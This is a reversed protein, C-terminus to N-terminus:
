KLGNKGSDIEIEVRRSFKAYNAGSAPQQSGMGIAQIRDPAVGKQVLYDKVAEARAVSVSMNLSATGKSDTYGKIVARNRSNQILLEAVRDLFAFDNASLRTSGAEFYLSVPDQFVSKVVIEPKEEFFFLRIGAAALLFATLVFGAMLLRSFRGRRPHERPLTLSELAASRLDRGGMRFTKRIQKVYGAIIKGDIARRGELCGRMLAHDCILNILDPSGGSFRHIARVAESTFIELFSGAVMMRHRIYAATEKETFPAVHCRVAVRQLLARHRHEELRDKLASNGILLISLLKNGSDEMNSLIRIQEIVDANQNEADEVVLLVKKGLSHTELLFERFHILFDGKTSSKKDIKYQGSLLDFFRNVSIEPERITAVSLDGEIIRLLCGLLISKGSGDEGLLLLVGKTQEVGIKLHALNELQQEGLWIFRRDTIDRFPNEILGYYNLYRQDDDM